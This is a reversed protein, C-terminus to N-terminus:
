GRRRFARAARATGTAFAIAKIIPNSFALYALQSASDVTNTVSTASDLLTDLRELDTNAQTVTRQLEDIVPLTERRLQEISLRVAALTKTLSILAFVLVIVGLISAVAVIVAALDSATMDAVVVPMGAFTM